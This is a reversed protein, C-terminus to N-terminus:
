RTKPSMGILWWYLFIPALFYVVLYTVGAIELLIRELLSYDYDSATFVFIMEELVIGIWASAIPVAIIFGIFLLFPSFRKPTDKDFVAFLMIVGGVLIEMAYIVWFKMWYTSTPVNLGATESLFFFPAFALFVVLLSMVCGGGIITVGGDTTDLGVSSIVAIVIGMGIIGAALQSVAYAMDPIFTLINMNDRRLQQGAHFLVRLGVVCGHHRAHGLWDHRAHQTDREFVVLTDGIEGVSGDPTVSLQARYTKRVAAYIIAAPWLIFILSVLTPVNIPARRELMASRETQSILAYGAAVYSGVMDQLKQKILSVNLPRPAALDRGCHRCVVAEDQIQEACYPCPKM